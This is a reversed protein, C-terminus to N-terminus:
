FFDFFIRETEALKQIMYEVPDEPKHILVDKLLEEFVEYVKKGELYKEVEKQYILKNPKDM